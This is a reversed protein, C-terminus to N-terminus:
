LIAKFGLSQQFAAHLPYQGYNQRLQELTGGGCSRGANLFVVSDAIEEAIELQHTSFIVTHGEHKINRLLKVFENMWYPDLGNTPEDMILLPPKALIAQAFLVRQRMGKSFTSVAINRKEELGVIRLVERVRVEPVRRLAAWFSLLEHATLGQPFHYDDPMYGIHEAFRKRDKKWQLHNVYIEGSTPQIIGAIMRLITSKGAGNGGCLGVISSPDISLNIHEVITQKKIVKGADMVRVLPDAM